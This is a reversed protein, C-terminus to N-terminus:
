DGPELDVPLMAIPAIYERAARDDLEGRIALAEERRGARALMHGLTGLLLAGRQSLETARSAHRVADDVRGAHLLNASSVWLTPISNPDLELGKDTLAVAGDFGGTGDHAFPLAGALFPA